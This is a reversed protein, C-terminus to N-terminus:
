VLKTLILSTPTIRIFRDHAIYAPQPVKRRCDPVPLVLYFLIFVDSCMSCPLDHCKINRFYVLNNLVAVFVIWSLVSTFNENEM